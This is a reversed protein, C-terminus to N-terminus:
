IFRKQLVQVGPYSYSYIGDLPIGWSHAGVGDGYDITLSKTEGVKVTIGGAPLGGVWKAHSVQVCFLTMLLGSLFVQLLRKM